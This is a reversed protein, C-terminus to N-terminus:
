CNVGTCMGSGSIKTTPAVTVDTFLHTQSMLAAGSASATKMQRAAQKASGEFGAVGHAELASRLASVPMRRKKFLSELALELRGMPITQKRGFNELLVDDLCAGCTRQTLEDGRYSSHRPGKLDLFLAKRQDETAHDALLSRCLAFLHEKASRRTTESAM